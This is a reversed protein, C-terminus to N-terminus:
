RIMELYRKLELPVGYVVNGCGFVMGEQEVLAALELPKTVSRFSLGSSFFPRHGVVLRNKWKNGLLWPSFVRLRQPRDRRHNFLVTTDERRWGLSLFLDETTVLDNASFAFALRGKGVPLVSFDAVDPPLAAIASASTDRDMSSLVCALLALAGNSEMHPPLGEGLSLPAMRVDCGKEKLLALALRCRAMEGGLVVTGGEPVGPCLAMSAGEEGDGWADQHDPRVNTLVTLSPRMWRAALPQLQPSVASNEMVAAECDPPLSDLWWRMEEVHAGSSRLIPAEGSPTLTRPIVGTIRGYARLESAVMARHIMRVVTSKGRSGTVLIRIM